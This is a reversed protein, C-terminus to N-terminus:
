HDLFLPVSLTKLLTRTVSGLFFERVANTGFAGMVVMGASLRRIENLLDQGIDRSHKRVQLEYPIGHRHLYTAASKIHEALQCTDNDIAVLHITRNQWLGSAVFSALARAAQRSGDYAILVREEAMHEPPMVLVPRPSSKIIADLLSRELFNAQRSGGCVLLEAGQAACSLRELITGEEVHVSSEVDKVMAAESLQNLLDAAITRGSAIAQRDCEIKFSEGGLSVSEPPALQAPDIISIGEISLHHRQALSTISTILNEQGPVPKIAALITRPMMKTKSELSTLNM